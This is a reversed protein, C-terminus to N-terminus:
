PKYWDIFLETTDTAMPRGEEDRIMILGGRDLSTLPLTEAGAVYKAFFETWKDGGTAVVIAEIDTTAYGPERGTYQFAVRRMVDDLSKSGFSDARLGIDILVALLSGKLRALEQIAPDRLFRGEFDAMTARGAEPHALYDAIWGNLIGRLQEDSVTGIAYATRLGYWRTVGESFWAV